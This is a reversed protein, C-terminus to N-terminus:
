ARPHTFWLGLAILTAPTLVAVWLLFPDPQQVYYPLVYKVLASLVTALLLVGVVLLGDRM